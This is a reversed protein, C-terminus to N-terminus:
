RDNEGPLEPPHNTDEFTQQLQRRHEEMKQSRALPVMSRNELDLDDFVPAMLETSAVRDRDNVLGDIRKRGGQCYEVIQQCLDKERQPLKSVRIAMILRQTREIGRVTLLKDSDARRTKLKRFADEVQRETATIRHQGMWLRLNKIAELPTMCSLKFYIEFPVRDGRRWSHLVEGPLRDICSLLKAVYSPSHGSKYAFANATVKFEDRMMKAAAAIEYPSLKERNTNELINTWYEESRPTDAPLVVAPIEKWGLNRVALTRRFGARVYYHGPPMTAVVTIPTRLGELDISTQLEALKVPDISSRFNVFSKDDLIRDVEILESSSYLAKTHLEAQPGSEKWKEFLTESQRKAIKLRARNALRSLTSEEPPENPSTIPLSTLVNM